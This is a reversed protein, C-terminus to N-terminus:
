GVQQKSGMEKEGCTEWVQNGIWIVDLSRRVDLSHLHVRQSTSCFFVTEGPSGKIKARGGCGTCIQLDIRSSKKHSGTQKCTNVAGKHHHHEGFTESLKWRFTQQVRGMQFGPRRLNPLKRLNKGRSLLRNLHSVKLSSHSPTYLSVLAPPFPQFGGSMNAVNSSM